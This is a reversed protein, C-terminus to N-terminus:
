YSRARYFRHPEDQAVDIMLNPYEEWSVNGVIQWAVLDRSTEVVMDAGFTGSVFVAVYRWPASRKEKDDYQLIQDWTEWPIKYFSVLPAEIKTGIQTYTEEKGSDFILVIRLRGRNTFFFSDFIIGTNDIPLFKYPDGDEIKFKAGIVGQLAVRVSQIPNINFSEATLQDAPGLYQDIVLSESTSDLFDTRMKYRVNGRSSGLFSRLRFSNKMLFDRYDGYSTFTKNSSLGVTNMGGNTLTQHLAITVLCNKGIVSQSM